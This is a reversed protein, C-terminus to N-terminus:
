RKTITADSNLITSAVVANAALLSKDLKTNVKYMGTNLWGTTKEPHDIFKKYEKQQLSTLLSIEKATPFRGTLKRYALVIAKEVDTQRTMEEGMVKAAEIFTPDNLTVLAQLPTNTSQRRVVCSARSPGDFNALTPNPVTRKLVVYLSRRYVQDTSDQVYNTNNIEWLGEPQYPYVSPGGITKNLLGSAMLANDRVMEATLRTAPGRGLLRNEPDKEKLADSATSNQRYTASMVMWKVLKKVDWGTESFEVALWDLLDLHSPLEGQNGFDEATKILGAGFIYQWIHNVAVRATLPNKNDTLWQALGYRNKPLNSPFALISAPTNPYVQKTPADYQGRNLLFTKKPIPMEQMVMLEKIKETSDSLLQYNAQLMKNAAIINPDITSLYYDNLAAMDDKSLQDPKKQTISQWNTQQALVQIEFSTLARNYVTIDDIKGGKFGLGRYWAGFQLAPEEKSFFIIDKNLQDIVTEMPSPAGDIFLNLGAAMATGDYVIALHIWQNRPVENISVKTIANSPATHALTLEFKNNKISLNYGKFNYLREANSKHLIVGEKMDKPINMWVGITFPDSKRFIGVEKLDLYTDGNLVLCHGDNHKELLPTERKTDWDRRMMATDSGNVLNKLGAEFNYHGVLSPQPIRQNSISRYKEQQLWDEFSKKAAMKKATVDVASAKIKAQIFQITAEQEKTPLMLTPTPMDDNWSIQGAERVNNFFSYLEYYNQQSIPDYKHDHCRACGISMSLFAEGFTNTRDMVYETQFEEEVIGGEMNQPHNRNFATAIIMDKTPSPMLDGALQYTIFNKYSMNNNFAKIVWDRYVSMDRIRDVTYGYSDAFRALDLWHTAMKEGYHLSNLLRDIQKEYANASNDALFNNMEEITPPLGTLDLSVRRLLIEKSAPSSPQLGEQLLKAIIFHDISNQTTYNNIPPVAKKVPAVFAWHPQYVAGEEIWKILIAKEQASLTLHSNPTPMMYDPDTSIIRHYVESKKLNGPSIAVKNANEPLPAYASAAIDLRLGAKQKAKDPGHCSFCKDSLIPKVHQNYDIGSPLNDYAIKVQDPLTTINTFAYLGLILGLLLYYKKM